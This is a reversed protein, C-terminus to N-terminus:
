ELYNDLLEQRIDNFSKCKTDLILCTLFDAIDSVDYDETVNLMYRLQELNTM